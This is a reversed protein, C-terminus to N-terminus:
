GRSPFFYEGFLAEMIGWKASVISPTVIKQTCEYIRRNVLSDMKEYNKYNADRISGFTRSSADRIAIRNKNYIQKRIEKVNM